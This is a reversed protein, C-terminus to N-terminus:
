NVLKLSAVSVANVTTNDLQNWNLGTQYIFFGKLQEIKQTNYKFCKHNNKVLHDKVNYTTFELNHRQSTQKNTEEQKVGTECQHYWCHRQRELRGPRLLSIFKETPLAPVLGEVVKYFLTLRLLWRKRSHCWLTLRNENDDYLFTQQVRSKQQVTCYWLKWCMLTELTMFLGSYLVM